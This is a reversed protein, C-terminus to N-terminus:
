DPLKAGCEGCFKLGAHNVTGCAECYERPLSGVPTGCEECFRADEPNVIKCKPCTCRLVREKEEKEYQGKKDLLEEEDKNLSEIKKDLEDIEKTLDAFEKNDRLAPLAKEGLGIILVPRQDQLASAEEKIAALKKEFEQMSM